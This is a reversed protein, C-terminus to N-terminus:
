IGASLLLKDVVVASLLPPASITDPVPEKPQQCSSTAKTETNTTTTTVRGAAPTSLVDMRTRVALSPSIIGQPHHHNLPLVLGAICSQNIAIRRHRIPLHIVFRDFQLQDAPSRYFFRIRILPTAQSAENHATCSIIPSIGHLYVLSRLRMTLPRDFLNFHRYQVARPLLPPLNHQASMGIM